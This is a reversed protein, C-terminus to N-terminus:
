EAKAVDAEAQSVRGQADLRAQDVGTNSQELQANLVAIQQKASTVRAEAQEVLSQQQEERARVQEDDIVAIIQGAKVQDGERVKIEKIRGATKASVAADDGEIRGSLKVLNPDTKPSLVFFFWIAGGAIATMFIAVALRRVVFFARSPTKSKDKIDTKNETTDPMITRRLIEAKM